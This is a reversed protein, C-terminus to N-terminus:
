LTFILFNRFLCFNTVDFWHTLHYSAKDTSVFYRIETRMCANVALEKGCLM